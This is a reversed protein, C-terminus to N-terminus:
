AASSLYRVDKPSQHYLCNLKDMFGSFPNIETCHEVADGVSLQMRHRDVPHPFKSNLKAFVGTKSGLMVAAGESCFGVLCKNIFADDLGHSKLCLSQLTKQM